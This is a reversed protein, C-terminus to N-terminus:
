IFRSTCTIKDLVIFEIIKKFEFTNTAVQLRVTKKAKTATESIGEIELNILSTEINLNKIAELKIFNIQSGSELISRYVQWCSQNGQM